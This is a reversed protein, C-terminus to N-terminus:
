PVSSEPRNGPNGSLSMRKRAQILEKAVTGGFPEDAKAEICITAPRDDQKAFLALDHCRPGHAVFPLPTERETIGSLIVIGRTGEHSDLLETLERPVAPEGNATWARGLECASRGEKWHLKRRQAPLAYDKWDAFNRIPEGGHGEIKVRAIAKQTGIM